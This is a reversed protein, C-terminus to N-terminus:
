GDGAECPAFTSRHPLWVAVLRAKIKELIWRREYQDIWVGFGGYLSHIQPVTDTRTCSVKVRALDVSRRFAWPSTTFRRRLAERLV